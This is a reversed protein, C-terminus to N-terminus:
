RIQMTTPMMWWIGGVKCIEHKKLYQSIHTATESSGYIFLKGGSLIREKIRDINRERIDTGL